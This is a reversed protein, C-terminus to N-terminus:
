FLKYSLTSLKVYIQLANWLSFTRITQKNIRSVGCIWREYTSREPIRVWCQSGFEVRWRVSQFRAPLQKSFFINSCVLYFGVYDNRTVDIDIVITDVIFIVFGILVLLCIM